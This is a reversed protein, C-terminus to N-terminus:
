SAVLGLSNRVAVSISSQGHADYVLAHARKGVYGDALKLTQALREPIRASLPFDAGIAHANNVCTVCKCAIRIM